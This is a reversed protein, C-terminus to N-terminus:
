LEDQRQEVARRVLELGQRDLEKILALVACLINDAAPVREPTAREGFGNSAGPAESMMSGRARSDLNSRRRSENGRPGTDRDLQLSSSVSSGGNRKRGPPSRTAEPWAAPAREQWPHDAGNQSHWADRGDRGLDSYCGPSREGPPSQMFDRSEGRPTNQPTREDFVGNMSSGVHERAQSPLPREDLDADLHSQRRGSAQMGGGRMPREDQRELYMTEEVPMSYSRPLMDPPMEMSQRQVRQQQAPQRRNGGGRPVARSPPGGFRDDRSPPGSFRDDEMQFAETTHRRQPAMPSGAMPEFISEPAEEPNMSQDGMQGGSQMEVYTEVSSVDVEMAQRREDDTVDQSDFKNLNPLHHLVYLRYHPLKAVPNDSLWLVRMHRLNRLHLVESLDRIDNKRLYLEALKPCYRLDALSSVGNVSLSLVELNPMYQLVSIDQLDNGWLNLNKILDMRNCKTRM